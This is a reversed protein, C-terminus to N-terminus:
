VRQTGGMKSRLWNFFRRKLPAPLMSRGELYDVGQDPHWVTQIGLSRNLLAGLAAGCVAGLGSIAGWSPGSLNPIAPSFVSAIILGLIAYLVVRFM